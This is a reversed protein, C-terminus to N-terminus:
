ERGPPLNVTYMAIHISFDNNHGAYYDESNSKWDIIGGVMFLIIRPYDRSLCWKLTGSTDSTSFNGGDLTNVYLVSPTSSGAYAGRSDTGFGTAGPFIKQADTKVTHLLLFFAALAIASFNRKLM